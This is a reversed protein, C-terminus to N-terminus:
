NFNLTTVLQADKLFFDTLKVGYRLCHHEIEEWVQDRKM